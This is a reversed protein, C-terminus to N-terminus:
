NKELIFGGDSVIIDSSSLYGYVVLFRGNL